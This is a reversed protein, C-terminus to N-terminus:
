IMLAPRLLNGRGRFDMVASFFEVFEGMDRTGLQNHELNSLEVIRCINYSPDCIVAQLGDFQKDGLQEVDGLLGQLAGNYVLCLSKM